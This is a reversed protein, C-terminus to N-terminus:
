AVKLCGAGKLFSAAQGAQGAQGAAWSTWSASRRPWGLKGLKGLKGRGAWNASGSCNASGAWQTEGVGVRWGVDMGCCLFLLNMLRKFCLNIPQDIISPQHKMAGPDLSMSTPVRGQFEPGHWGGQGYAMLKSALWSGQTMPGPGSVRLM